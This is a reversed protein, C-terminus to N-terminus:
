DRTIKKKSRRFYNSKFYKLMVESFTSYPEGLVILITDSNM